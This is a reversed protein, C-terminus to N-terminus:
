SLTLWKSYTTNKRVGWGGGGGNPGPRHTTTWLALDMLVLRELQKSVFSTLGIGRLDDETQPFPIKKLPLHYKKKFSEPWTHTEVAEKLIANIPLAFEPLFEKLISAPIDGPVSDTKKSKKM